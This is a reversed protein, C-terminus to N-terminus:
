GHQKGKSALGIAVSGIAAAILNYPFPMLQGVASAGEAVKVPDVVTETAPQGTEPDLVIDGSSDFLPITSCGVIFVGLVCLVMWKKM